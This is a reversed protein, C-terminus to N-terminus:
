RLINIATKVFRFTKYSLFTFLVIAIPYLTIFNIIDTSKCFDFSYKDFTPAYYKYPTCEYYYYGKDYYEILQASTNTINTGLLPLIFIFGIHFILNLKPKDLAEVTM